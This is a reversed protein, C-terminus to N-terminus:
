FSLRQQNLSRARDKCASISSRLCSIGRKRHPDCAPLGKTRLARLRLSLDDDEGGNVEDDGVGDSLIDKDGESRQGGIIIDADIVDDNPTGFFLDNGIIGFIEVM